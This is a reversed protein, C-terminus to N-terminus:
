SCRVKDFATHPPEGSGPTWSAHSIVQIRFTGGGPLAGAFHFTSHSVASQKNFSGGFWLTLKGTVVPVNADPPGIITVNDDSDVTVSSPPYSTITATGTFTTTFWGNQAKNLTLHEVGTGTGVITVYDVALNAPCGPTPPLPTGTDDIETFHATESCPAPVTDGCALDPATNAGAPDTMVLPLVLVLAAVAIMTRKTWKAM